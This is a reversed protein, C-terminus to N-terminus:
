KDNTNWDEIHEDESNVYQQDVALDDQDHDFEEKINTYTPGAICYQSRLVDIKYRESEDIELCQTASSRWLLTM